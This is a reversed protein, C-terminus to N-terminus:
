AASQEAASAIVLAALGAGYSDLAIHCAVACPLCRWRDCAAGCSWCGREYEGLRLIPLGATGASAIVQERFTTARRLAERVDDAHERLASTWEAPVALRPRGDDWTVRGGALLARALVIAGSM